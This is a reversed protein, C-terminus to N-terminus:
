LHMKYSGFNYLLITASQEPICIETERLVRTEVVVLFWMLELDPGQISRLAPKLAHVINWKTVLVSKIPIVSMVWNYVGICNMNLATILM